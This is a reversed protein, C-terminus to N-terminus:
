ISGDVNYKIKYVWECAILKKGVLLDVVEKTKNLVLADIKHKMAQVWKDDLIAEGYFTPKICNSFKSIFGQYAPSLHSYQIVHHISHPSSKTSPLSHVYDSLCIPPKTARSPRKLPLSTLPSNSPTLAQSVPLSTSLPSPQPSLLPVLPQQSVLPPTSDSDLLYSLLYFNSM